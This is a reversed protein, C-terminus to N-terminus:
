EMEAREAIEFMVIQKIYLIGQLGIEGIRNRIVSENFKFAPYEERKHKEKIKLGETSTGANCKHVRGHYRYAM